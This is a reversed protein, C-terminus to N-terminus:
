AILTFLYFVFAVLLLAAGLLGFLAPKLWNAWRFSALGPLISLVGGGSGGPQGDFLVGRVGWARCVAIRMSARLRVYPSGNVKPRESLGYLGIKRFDALVMRRADNSPNGIDSM